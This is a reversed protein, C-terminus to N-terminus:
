GGPVEFHFLISCRMNQWLLWFQRPVGSVLWRATTSSMALVAVVAPAQGDAAFGVGVGVWAADLDGIVFHGGEIELAVVEMRVAVVGDRGSILHYLTLKHTDGLCCFSSASLM